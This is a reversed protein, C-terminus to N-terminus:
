LEHSSIRTFLSASEDRRSVAFISLTELIRSCSVVKDRQVKKLEATNTSLSKECLRLAHSFFQTTNTFNSLTTNFDHILLKCCYGYALPYYADTLKILVSLLEYSEVNKTKYYRFLDKNLIEPNLSLSVRM